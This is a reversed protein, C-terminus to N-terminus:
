EQAECWAQFMLIDWLHYHWNGRGSLHEIWKKRIPQPRFIGERKLRSEDLLNEAWPRLPGRLWDAIPVSFGMKPREVIEKPVYKFLIQRLISKSQESGAKVSMPLGLSFEALRHDLFPIRTELSVSMSARDVKVLIDDPLYTLMDLLMMSDYMSHMALDNSIKDLYLRPEKGAIVIEEPKICHSMFNRYYEAPEKSSLIKSFKHIKEGSLDLSGFIGNIPSAVTDWSQKPILCLLASVGDRVINPVKETKSWINFVRSYRSYGGFLEDAGDGSIAVKVTKRALESLFFNPIQSPDSFPEDYILPLRQILAQAETATVYLSTHDTSLHQAVAKAHNAENYGQENFGITFTKVPQTSQSQMLSVVLSSDIGGSLFAGIPVDAIMQGKIADKLLREVEICADNEDGLFQNKCASNAIKELSWYEEIRMDGAKSLKLLSGPMLKCIGHYISQPAPIYNHRLFLTVADRNIEGVFAPHAKLAKLESGFLFVGNQWGYFLPKEGFRDRALTLCNEDRDWLAFAFMGICLRLTREVGWVDFAVLLTETDSHGSWVNCGEAELLSRILKHNYIEGNFVIVYRNTPSVMPQHGAASTDLISLRRHSLAIEFRDDTWVGSDDPGRHLIANAMREAVIYAMEANHSRYGLFGALGCM